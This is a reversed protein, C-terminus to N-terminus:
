WTYLECLNKNIRGAFFLFSADVPIDNAKQDNLEDNDEANKSVLNGIWSFQILVPTRYSTCTIAFRGNCEDLVKWLDIQVPFSLWSYSPGKFIYKQIKSTPEKGKNLDTNVGLCRSFWDNIRAVSEVDNLKDQADHWNNKICNKHNLM